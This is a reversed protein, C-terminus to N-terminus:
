RTASQSCGEGAGGLTCGVVEGLAKAVHDPPEGTDGGRLLPGQELHVFRNSASTAESECSDPLQNDIRGQVNSTGCLLRHRGRDAPDNCSFAQADGALQRNIADRVAISIATPRLDTTGDSIVAAEGQSPTFGHVSVALSGPHVRRLARHAATFFTDVEHAADSIRVDGCPGSSTTCGTKESAACRHAGNILVAQAGLAVAADVAEELTGEDSDGHPAELWMERAPQANIAFTGGGRDGTADSVILWSAGNTHTLCSVEFGYSGLAEVASPSSPDRLLEEFAREFGTLEASPPLEFRTLTPRIARLTQQVDGETCGPIPATSPGTAAGTSTGSPQQADGEGPQGGCAFLIGASAALVFLASRLVRPM